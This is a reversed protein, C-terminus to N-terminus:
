RSAQGLVIVEHAALGHEHRSWTIRVQDGPRINGLDITRGDARLVADPLVEAGVRLRDRERPIEVVITRSEITVAAVTGTGARKQGGAWTVGPLLFTIVILAFGTRLARSLRTMGEKKRSGGYEGSVDHHKIARIGRRLGADGSAQCASYTPCGAPVLSASDEFSQGLCLLRRQCIPVHAFSM